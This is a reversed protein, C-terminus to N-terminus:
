GLRHVNRKGQRWQVEKKGQFLRRMILWYIRMNNKAILKIRKERSALTKYKVGRM